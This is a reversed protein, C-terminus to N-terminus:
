GQNGIISIREPKHKQKLHCLLLLLLCGSNLLGKMDLRMKIFVM